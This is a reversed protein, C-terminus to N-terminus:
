TDRRFIISRSAARAMGGALMGVVILGLLVPAGVRVSAIGAFVALLSLVGGVLIIQNSLDM